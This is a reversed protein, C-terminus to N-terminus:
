NLLDKKQSIDMDKISLSIFNLIECLSQKLVELGIKPGQWFLLDLSSLGGVFTESIGQSYPVLFRPNQFSFNRLDEPQTKLYTQTHFVKAKLRFAERLFDLAALNLAWLFPNEAYIVQKLQDEFYEFYPSKGYNSTLARWHRNRWHQSDDVCVETIPIKDQTHRIPIVLTDSDQKGWIRTRNRSSQKQYNEQAELWVEDLFLSLYPVSPFYRLEVVM